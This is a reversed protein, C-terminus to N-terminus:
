PTASRWSKVMAVKGLHLTNNSTPGRLVTYTCLTMSGAEGHERILEHVFLTMSYLLMYVLPLLLVFGGGVKSYVLRCAVFLLTFGALDHPTCTM